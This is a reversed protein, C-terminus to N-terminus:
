DGAKEACAYGKLILCSGSMAVRGHCVQGPDILRKDILLCLGQGDAGAGDKVGCGVTGKGAM